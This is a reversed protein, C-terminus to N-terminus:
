YLFKKHIKKLSKKVKKSDNFGSVLTFSEGLTKIQKIKNILMDTEYLMNKKKDNTTEIKHDAISKIGHQKFSQETM